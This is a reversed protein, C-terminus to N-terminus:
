LWLPLALWEECDMQDSATESRVSPRVRVPTDGRRRRTRRWAVLQESAREDTTWPSRRGGGGRRGMSSQSQGEEEERESGGSQTQEAGVTRHHVPIDRPWALRKAVDSGAAAAQLRFLSNGVPAPRRIEKGSFPLTAFPLFAFVQADILGDSEPLYSNKSPAERMMGSGSQRVRQRRQLAPLAIQLLLSTSRRQGRSNDDGNSTAAAPRGDTARSAEHQM